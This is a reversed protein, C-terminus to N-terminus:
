TQGGIRATQQLAADLEETSFPKPLFPIGPPPAAPNGSMLVVPLHPREDRLRRALALGDMSGPMNIDSVVAEIGAIQDLLMLAEDASGAEVLHHGLRALKRRIGRRVERDDEVLLILRPEDPDPRPAPAPAPAPLAVGTTEADPLLIIFTAGKGPTSEVWIAGNSQRVFGYVMSLGLGSGAGAAKSTVFPEFIKEALEPEIGAGDDAFAIRIYTGARMHFFEAEEAQLAYTSTTITITGQGGTADRANMAMNLLAMELQAHDVLAPPLDGGLRREIRLGAPLSSALLTCIEGIAADIDTPVPDFQERRALTLLRKTLSSGRRAASIAPTLFGEIQVPDRLQESLPILNGLIVTLLNNFDHSIGSAMRGLADMKHARTLASEAAKRRTIDISLLYFGIVEGSSPKEPRLLTRIQKFRNGPLEIRMEFDVLAGRRAQEFFKASEAMTNPHLLDHASLGTIEAPEKLYAHSFRRNAYLIIMDRDIHAIGAPVEDAILSLREESLLLEARLTDRQRITETIDTYTTVVGGDVLPNGAIELTSGDPRARELRRTLYRPFAAVREAVHAATDGPGYEGRRANFAVFSAYDAGPYAMNEPFGYLELFKRNWAVLKMERDFITIGQTLHELGDLIQRMKVADHTQGAM